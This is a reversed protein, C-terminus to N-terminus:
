ALGYFLPGLFKTWSHRITQLDRCVTAPSVGVAPAIDADKWGDLKLSAVERLRGVPLTGLLWDLFDKEEAQFAPDAGSAAPAHGGEAEDLLPRNRGRDRKQRGEAVQVNVAKRSAITALLAWVHDRDPLMPFEGAELRLCFSKIASQAVDEAQHGDVIHGNVLRVLRDFYGDPAYFHRALEETAPRSGTSAQQLLLTLTGPQPAPSPPKQDSRTM